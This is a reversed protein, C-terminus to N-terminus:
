QHVGSSLVDGATMEALMRRVHGEVATAAPSRTRGRKFVLCIDGRTAPFGAVELEVVRGAAIDGSLYDPSSMWTCDTQLMTEKLVHFNDCVVSGTAGSASPLEMASAVPYDALMPITVRREKTLPHGARVMIAIKVRGLNHLETTPMRGLNWNNGIIMEIRDSLLDAIMQDPPRTLTVIQLRPWAQLLASSIGPLFLGAILPGIGFAVRGVEGEPYHRLSRELDRAASLLKQAQDIVHLGAATPHVCGRGRDFLVVGRRREFAAISRSLAPQTIGEEEAARSFSRNRNVAVIHRLRTFDVANIRRM